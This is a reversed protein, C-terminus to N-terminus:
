WGAWNSEVALIGDSRGCNCCGAAPVVPAGPFASAVVESSGEALRGRLTKSGESGKVSTIRPRNVFILSPSVTRKRNGLSRTLDTTTRRSM